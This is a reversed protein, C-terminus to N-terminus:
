GEGRFQDLVKIGRDGYAVKIKQILIINLRQIEEFEPRKRLAKM